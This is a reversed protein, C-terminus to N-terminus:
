NKRAKKRLQKALSAFDRMLSIDTRGSFRLLRYNEIFQKIYDLNFKGTQIATYLVEGSTSSGTINGGSRSVRKRFRVYEGSVDNYKHYSIRRQRLRFVVFLVFVVLVAAMIKIFPIAPMEVGAKRQGFFYNTMRKQDYSSFGVVYRYWNLNVMDLLLVINFKRPIVVPPTPDFLHWRGDIFAEVWSHADSQRILYYDGFENRSGSLYGTVLRAPIEISRLMLTMATAFHECYGERSNFLFHEIATVGDEPQGSSLSYEYNRFLYNRISDAKMLGDTDGSTIDGALKTVSPIEDPFQLYEKIFVNDFYQEDISYIRYFFRKSKKLRMYFSGASDRRMYYGQSEIKYPKKYTFIVDSDIPELYIEAEFKEEGESVDRGFEYTRRFIRRTDKITDYWADGDFHDFTMGRLYLPGSLDPNLIVRMVVTEDLKVDGFSGFDVKESFGTTKIGKLFSKGWLGSRFRPISVFFVVTLVLTLVTIIAVPRLYPRFAKQGERVFHGLVISVVIFVLFVLFVIGFAITNTLESAILLQLLSVFFVQLPDWPEKIDFSKITQFILTMQAVSLFVDGTVLVDALFVLFTTLSLGGVARKPLAPYGKISRYYGWLLGAGVLSFVSGMEGTAILSTNGILAVIATFVKYIGPM